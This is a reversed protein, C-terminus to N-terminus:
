FTWGGYYLGSYDVFRQRVPQASRTFRGRVLYVAGFKKRHIHRLMKDFVTQPPLRNIKAALVAMQNFLPLGPEMLLKSSVIFSYDFGSKEGVACLQQKMAKPEPEAFFLFTLFLEGEPALAKAGVSLAERVLALGDGGGAVERPLRLGPTAFYSPVSGLVLQYAGPRCDRASKLFRWNPAVANLALTAEIIGRQYDVNAIDVSLGPNATLPLVEGGSSPHLCLCAGQDPPRVMTLLARTDNGFYVKPPAHRDVFIARGQHSILSLTGLSHKGGSVRCLKHSTLFRLAAAGLLRSLTNQPLKEGLLFFKWIELTHGSLKPAMKEWDYPRLAGEGLLNLLDFYSTEYLCQLLAAADPNPHSQIM